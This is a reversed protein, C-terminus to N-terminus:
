QTQTTTTVINTMTFPRIVFQVQNVRRGMSNPSQGYSFTGKIINRPSIGGKTLQAKITNFRQTQLQEGTLQTGGISTTKLNNTSMNITITAGTTVTGRIGIGFGINNVGGGYGFPAIRTITAAPVAAAVSNVTNIGAPTMTPYAPNFDVNTTITQGNRIRLNQANNTTTTPGPNNANPAKKEIPTSPPPIQISPTNNSSIKEEMGQFTLKNESEGTGFGYKMTTIIMEGIGSPESLIQTGAVVFGKDLNKKNEENGTETYPDNFPVKTGEPLQKGDKGNIITVITQGTKDKEGMGDPDIKAIPNDSCYIYPGQPTYKNELPDTATWRCIWPLYYRAGHYYFGTIEDREKGTYRYRKLSVESSSRGCQFSTSGYPYYEEYSIIAAAYDLELTATSLHNSFQYRLLQAESSGTTNITPTDLMAVRAKDDMIHLTERQLQITGSVSETYQEWEGVYLRRKTIGSNSDVVQKIVRQGNHDYLYYSIINGSADIVKELRNEDNYAMSDQYTTPNYLHNMGGVINGRADYHYTESVTSNSGISNVNLQNNSGSITFMRTWGGGSAVHQMKIMNGVADYAYYQTYNRLATADNPLPQGCRSADSYNVAGNDGAHERGSAQIIRYLADYTYDNTPSVVSNSFYVTQQAGDEQKTINGVPDYWYCLDQLIDTGGGSANRTTRINTVRFTFPDYAYTTTAGNEYQVKIRQGKADYAVTNIIGTTVSHVGSIGVSYLAGSLDYAYTATGSDPTVTTVPRGLDDYTYATIFAADTGLVTLDRWDPQATVTGPVFQRSISNPSGKHDYSVYKEMGAGDYIKFPKGRLNNAQDSTAGEGYIINLLIKATSSGSVTVERTVQRRGIDYTHHFMRMDADWSYLPQGGADLFMYQVGSDISTQKVVAKLQSYTYQLPILGRADHIALRDTSIDLDVSSVYFADNWTGSSDPFRDHQITAVPRALTDLFAITPTNYHNNAKNAADVEESVSNLYSGATKRESYWTSDAVTDNGDYSLQTWADWTTKSFTGDPMDTQFVRGLPDYHIRPSVGGSAAQLATDCTHTNSYYPEYQLVPKGKNNYVARGSGIWRESSDTNPAAQAKHMIVRGLGDTYSIRIINSNDHTSNNPTYENVRAIMGVAVPVTNLDYICRWTAGGLLTASASAPDTWFAAQNYADSSSDAVIGTLTDGRTGDNKAMQAMAVPMGLADFLMKTVNLNTDELSVPQLNYWNYALVQEVNGLPDTVSQPLLYYPQVGGSNTWYTVTTENGWPDTYGVPMYFTAAPSSYIMTGEALWVWDTPDPPLRDTSLKPFGDVNGFRLYGGEDIMADTVLDNLYSSGTRVGGTFALHYQRYPIGLTDYEGLFLPNATDDSLFQTRSCSILRRQAPPLAVPPTAPVAPATPIDTYNIATAGSLIGVLAEPTWLPTSPILVEGYVQYSNTQYPMRLRYTQPTDIDSVLTGTQVTYSTTDYTVLPIYLPLIGDTRFVQLRQTRELVPGLVPDIATTSGPYNAPISQRPYSVKASQLVNGYLDVELTLEQMIRPDSANRECHWAISQEKYTYFSAYMNNELPQMLNVHFGNATVMYPINQLSSGDQAYVEQRLAQGKLARHAERIEQPLLGSPFVAPVPINWGVNNYYETAFQDLLTSERMWAGTHYWTRTLIPPQDLDNETATGGTETLSGDSEAFTGGSMLFFPAAETDTTDVRGFGRFEREEHDYYGHHYSYTQTYTTGSVSDSTAVQSVCHVPFPLRTAWPTQNAQDQLYYFTSQQYTLTITKGMGNQYSTMLYPKDGGMLDIYRMPANAYQPLPSSWVICPTGAGLIDMVAIKSFQDMPPVGNIVAPASWANGALNIWATCKNRGLYLIDAAGTGSIDALTLYIPNFQDPTDFLPANTMAVRAGFRGFGTNPWYCVEGNQIRVIDTMGDGNMDALFISQVMDSLLMRPGKEEDYSTAAYGGLTFGDTGQNEYWTWAREETLLLDPRGDGNLDLMKTFPSNWDVNINETFAQFPQWQQDDNLEFYGPHSGDRSVLMRRGDAQLDQWQMSAGLGTFSPKEAVQMAPTFHGEGLNRKYFWGQAQETLIGPLGEGNLDIWQYPGTLGQPANKVDEPSVNTVTNSWALAQYSMSMAPLSKNIYATPTSGPTSVLIYGTSVLSTILDAEAYIDSTNDQQYTMDLSRVLCAAGTNLENFYHFMLVRRCKRYTRIEFGAHFDSFPDKRCPWTPSPEPIPAATDHDGYDMVAEMLYAPSSPMAPGYVDTGVFFPNENCYSINKLYKNAQGFTNNLRNREHVQPTVGVTDEPVYTYQQVNGKNDYSLQPLWKYIRSNDAPDCICADVNLGYFTVIDDKTVVKWWSHTGGVAKIFEIRVFLGEIRPRYRKVIYQNTGSTYTTPSYPVWNDGDAVLLPQLDEAGALLFVDSENADDYEPLKKDTRRQISPLGLSWGLGFESNGGGSSYSLNLSPTFGSRGPTLPLPVQMSSTGNVANVSFKEDIGKLAGGGKPLSISPAASKYYPSKEEGSDSKPQVSYKDLLHGGNPTGGNGSIKNKDHDPNM